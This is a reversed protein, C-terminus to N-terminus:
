SLEFKFKKNNKIINKNNDGNNKPINSNKKKLIKKIYSKSDDSLRNFEMNKIYKLPINGLSNFLIYKNYKYEYSYIDNNYKLPEYNYETPYLKIFNNFKIDSKVIRGTIDLVIESSINIEWISSREITYRKKNYRIPKCLKLIDEILRGDAIIINDIIFNTISDECLKKIFKKIKDLNYSNYSSISNDLLSWDISSSKSKIDLFNSDIKKIKNNWYNNSITIDHSKIYNSGFKTKLLFLLEKSKINTKNSMYSLPYIKINPINNTLILASEISSYELSTYIKQTSLVFNLLNENNTNSLLLRLENIGINDLSSFEEKKIINNNNKEKFSFIDFFSKSKKKDVNISNISDIIDNTSTGRCILYITNNIIQKSM